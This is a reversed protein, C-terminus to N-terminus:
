RKGDAGMELAMRLVREALDARHGEAPDSKRRGALADALAAVEAPTPRADGRRIRSLRRPPLGAERALDPSTGELTSLARRVAMALDLDPARRDRGTTDRPSM